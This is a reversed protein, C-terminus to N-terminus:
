TTKQHAPTRALHAPVTVRVMGAGPTVMVCQMTDAHMIM